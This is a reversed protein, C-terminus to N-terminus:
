LADGHWRHLHEVLAARALAVNPEPMDTFGCVFPCTWSPRGPEIAHRILTVSATSPMPISTWAGDATIADIVTFPNLYVPLSADLADKDQRRHHVILRQREVDIVDWDRLMTVPESVPAHDSLISLSGM